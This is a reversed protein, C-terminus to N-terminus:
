LDTPTLFRELEAVRLPKGLVADFGAAELDPSPPARPELVAVMALDALARDARLAQAVQCAATVQASANVVVLCPHRRLATQVVEDLGDVAILERPTARHLLLSRLPERFAAVDPECIVVPRSRPPRALEVLLGRAILDRAAAALQRGEIALHDAIAALSLRGDVVTLIRRELTALQVGQIRASFGPARDVIV